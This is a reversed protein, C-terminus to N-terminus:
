AHLRNMCKTGWRREIERCAHELERLNLNSFAIYIRPPVPVVEAAVHVDLLHLIISYLLTALGVVAASIVVTNIGCTAHISM